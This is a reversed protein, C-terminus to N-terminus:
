EEDALIDEDGATITKVLKDFYHDDDLVGRKHKNILGVLMATKILSQKNKPAFDDLVDARYRRTATEVEISQQCVLYREMTKEGKKFRSYVKNVHGNNGEQGQNSRKEPNLYYSLRRRKKESSLYYTKM